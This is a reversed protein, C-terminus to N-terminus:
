AARAPLNTAVARRARRALQAEAAAGLKRELREGIMPLTRLRGQRAARVVGSKSRVGLQKILRDATKPGIGPVELLDRLAPPLQSLLEDHFEMRGRTVLEGLKRRLRPGLWPLDCEGRADVYEGARVSLRLLGRAARRYARVRYPNAGQAELLAAVGFLIKAAERNEM